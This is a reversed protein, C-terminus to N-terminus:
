QWIRIVKHSNQESSSINRGGDKSFIKRLYGEVDVLYGSPLFGEILRVYRSNGMM